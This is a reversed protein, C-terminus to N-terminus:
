SMQRDIYGNPMVLRPFFEKINPLKKILYQAAFRKIARIPISLKSASETPLMTLGIAWFLPKYLWDATRLGLVARTSNLASVVLAQYQTDGTILRYRNMAITTDLHTNLVLM